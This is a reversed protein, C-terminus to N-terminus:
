PLKLGALRKRTDDVEPLGPDADKWLELFKEYHEIAKATNGQQEYVEGLRLHSKAWLGGWLLKGTTLNIAQEYTQLAAELEGGLLQAEGLFYLFAIHHNKLRNERPQLAWARNLIEIASDYKADVLDALGELLLGWGRNPTDNAERERKRLHAAERIKEARHLYYFVYAQAEMSDLKNINELMKAESLAEEFRGAELYCWSKLYYFEVMLDANEEEKALALGEDILSIAKEHKGQAMNLNALWTLFNMRTIVNEDNLGREYHKEAAEFDGKLHDIFGMSFSRPNMEIAKQAEPIADNFRGELIYTMALVSRLYASDDFNEIYERLVERAEKYDGVSCYSNVLNLYPDIAEYRNRRCVEGHPIAKDFELRNNYLNTIAWNFTNDEPYDELVEKYISL